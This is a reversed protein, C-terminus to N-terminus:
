LDAGEVAAPPAPIAALLDRTYPNQPHDFVDTVSGSEVLRGHQMVGVRHAIQRVVALDHSIFLYAIGLEHQLRALLRLIKAQVSVDLASVPEDLVVLDPELALARAIAVRQRQGGSLAAPRREAYGTPLGVRELLEAARRRREARDGLGYARLPETIQDSISLRPDLSAYPSQYVIQFRRRLQRLREGRAGTVEHGDFVVRGADPRELGITMRVTTTKGSGSEGVLAFTEARGISFGVEDAATVVEGGAIRPLAFTKTLGTVQLLPESTVASRVPGDAATVDYGRPEAADAGIRVSHLSPAASILEKTYDDQPDRLIQEATGTEVIRGRQMVAIRDAREAAVALDHTILLVGVGLDASLATIRDLITRQVTVDLASTPEDAVLLAPEAILAMAILARQRMGGSLQHPYQQARLAPRDVGAAALAEVAARDAGRRDALRHGRLVEAIQRGVKQVPNLASMPDQPVYGIRVGAIRRRLRGPLRLLDQGELTIGGAAVQASEPLLGVVAQATTSKGSGSEGVLAVIEGPEVLLDVGDVARVAARETRYDIQLNQIQLLPAEANM